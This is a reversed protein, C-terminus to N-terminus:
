SPPPPNINIPNGLWYICVRWFMHMDFFCWPVFAVSSKVAILPIPYIDIYIDVVFFYSKLIAKNQVSKYPATVPSGYLDTFGSSYRRLDGVEYFGFNKETLNWVLVVSLFFLFFILQPMRWVESTRLSVTEMCALDLTYPAQVAAYEPAMTDRHVAM